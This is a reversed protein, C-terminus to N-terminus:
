CKGNVIWTVTCTKRVGLQLDYKNVTNQYRFCTLTTRFNLFGCIESTVATIFNKLQCDTDHMENEFKGKTADSNLFENNFNQRKGNLREVYFHLV